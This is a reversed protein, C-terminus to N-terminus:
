LSHIWKYHIFTSNYWSLMTNHNRIFTHMNYWSHVTNDNMIFTHMYLSHVWTDHMGRINSGLRYVYTEKAIYTSRKQQILLDRKSMYWAHWSHVFQKTMFTICTNTKYPDIDHLSHTNTHWSYYTIFTNTNTHIYQYQHIPIPTNTHWSYYTIFTNTRWSYIRGDAVLSNIPTYHICRQTYVYVYTDCVQM